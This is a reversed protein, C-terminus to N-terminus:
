IIFKKFIIEFNESKEINQREDNKVKFAIASVVESFSFISAKKSSRSDKV